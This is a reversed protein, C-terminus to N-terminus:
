EAKLTIVARVASILQDNHIKGRKKHLLSGCVKEEFLHIYGFICGTVLGM